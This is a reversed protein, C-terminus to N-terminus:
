SHSNTVLLHSFKHWLLKLSAFLECNTSDSNLTGSDITSQEVIIQRSRCFSSREGSGISRGVPEIEARICEIAMPSADIGAFRGTERKRESERM